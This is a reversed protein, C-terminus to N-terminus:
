FNSPLHERTALRLLGTRARARGSQIWKPACKLGVRCPFGGEFRRLDAIRLVERFGGQFRRLERLVETAGKFGTFGGQFRRQAVDELFEARRRVSTCSDPTSPSTALVMLVLLYLISSSVVPTHVPNLNCNRM